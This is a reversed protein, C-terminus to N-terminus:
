QTAPYISSHTGWWWGFFCVDSIVCNTAIVLWGLGVMALWFWGLGLWGKGSVFKMTIEEQKDPADKPWVGMVPNM